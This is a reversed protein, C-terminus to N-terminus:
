KHSMASSSGTDEPFHVVRACSCVLSIFSPGSAITVASNTFLCVVVACKRGRNGEWFFMIWSKAQSLLCSGSSLLVHVPCVFLESGQMDLSVRTCGWSTTHMAVGSGVYLTILQIGVSFSGHCM